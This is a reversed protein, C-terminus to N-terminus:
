RAAGLRLGEGPPKPLSLLGLISGRLFEVGSLSGLLAKLVGRNDLVASPFDESMIATGPPPVGPASPPSVLLPMAAAGVLFRPM